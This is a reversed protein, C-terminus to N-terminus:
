GAAAPRTLAEPAGLERARVLVQARSTVGLKDILHHVHSKVSVESIVLREAIARNSLGLALLRLVDRERPTFLEGPPAARAGGAGGAQLLRAASDVCVGRGLLRRLLTRMPEGEDLFVRVYGAPEALTVARELAGLAGSADGGQERALALQALILILSSRPTHDEM